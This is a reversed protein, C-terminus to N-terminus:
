RAKPLPPRVAAPILRRLQRLNRLDDEVATKEDKPTEMIFPLHALRPESLITRWGPKGISGLGIHDHRDHKSGFASRLDNAHILSVLDLGFAAECAGLFAELGEPRDLAYGAAFAHATDLCLGVRERGTLEVVRGLEEPTDGVINGQGAANELILKTPGETRQRVVRLGTAVREMAQELSRAAGGSGLHLVVGEAGWRRAMTMDFVLREVSKRWLGEETTALNLLYPAHVFLPRLDYRDLARVFQENEEEDSRRTKWQGPASAFIQLCQCRRALAGELCRGLGGGIMVHFGIRM